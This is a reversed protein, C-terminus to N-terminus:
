KKKAYAKLILDAIPMLKESEAKMRDPNDFIGPVYKAVDVPITDGRDTKISTFPMRTAAGLRQQTRGMMTGADPGQFSFPEDPSTRLSGPYAATSLDNPSEAGPHAGLIAKLFGSQDFAGMKAGAAAQLLAKHMEPSSEDIHDLVSKVAAPDQNHLGALANLLTEGKKQDIDGRALGGATAPVTKDQPTIKMANPLYDKISAEFTRAREESDLGALAGGGELSPRVAGGAAANAAKGTLPGGLNLDSKSSNAAVSASNRAIDVAKSGTVGQGRLTALETLFVKQYLSDPSNDQKHKLEAEKIRGAGRMAELHPALAVEAITAATKYDPVFNSGTPSQEWHGSSRAVDHLIHNHLISMEQPSLNSLDQQHFDAVPNPRLPSSSSIQSQSDLPSQMPSSMGGPMVAGPGSLSPFMGPGSLPTPDTPGLEEMRPPQAGPMGGPMIAAGNQALGPTPAPAFLGALKAMGDQQEMMAQRKREEEAPDDYGGMAMPEMDFPGAM